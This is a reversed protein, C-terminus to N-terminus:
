LHSRERSATESSPVSIWGLSGTVMGLWANSAARNRPLKNMHRLSRAAKRQRTSFGIQCGIDWFSKTPCAPFRFSLGCFIFPTMGRDRQRPWRLWPNSVHGSYPGYPAWLSGSDLRWPSHDRAPEIGHGPSGGAESCAWRVMSSLPETLAPAFIGMTGASFEEGRSTIFRLRSRVCSTGLSTLTAFAVLSDPRHKTTLLPAPLPFRTGGNELADHFYWSYECVAINICTQV